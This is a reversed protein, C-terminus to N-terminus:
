NAGGLITRRGFDRLSVSSLYTLIFMGKSTLSLDLGSSDIGVGAHSTLFWLDYLDRPENRATDQLAVIRETAIENLSYVSIPRDEVRVTNSTPLPGQYRLYSTCSNLQTQRDEAEFSFPIGSAQAVLEYVKQLGESLSVLFWALCYDRELVAEPIRRGGHEKYLRNALPSLNRRPIM